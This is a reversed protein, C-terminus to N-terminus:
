QRDPARYTTVTNTFVKGTLPFTWVCYSQVMRVQAASLPITIQTLRISNTIPFPAGSVPIDLYDTQLPFNTYTAGSPIPMDDVTPNASLDWKAGRVDELGQLAYSQAALSMSSWEAFRNAQVYGYIIGSMVMTLVVLSVLLEVLTFAAYIGRAPRQVTRRGSAM